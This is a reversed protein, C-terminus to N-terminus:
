KKASKLANAIAQASQQRAVTAAQEKGIGLLTSAIWQRTKESASKPRLSEYQRELNMRDIATRLDKNSAVDTTRNTRVRGVVAKARKADGHTPGTPQRKRVGWKMGKTGYHALVREVALRSADSRDM